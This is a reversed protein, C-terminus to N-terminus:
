QQESKKEKRKLKNFYKQAHSAVQVRTRTKVYVESILRWKGYGCEELGLMFKDHEEDSWSGDNLGSTSKETKVFKIKKSEPELQFGKFILGKKKNDVEKELEIEEERPRKNPNPPSSPKPPLDSNFSFRRRSSNQLTQSIALTIPDFVSETATQEVTELGHSLVCNSVPRIDLLSSQVPQIPPQYSQLPIESTTIKTSEELESPPSTLQRFIEEETRNHMAGFWNQFLPQQPTRPSVEYFKPTSENFYLRPMVSNDERHQLFSYVDAMSVEQPFTMQSNNAPQDM